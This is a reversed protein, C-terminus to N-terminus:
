SCIRLAPAAARAMSTCAAASAQRTGADLDGDLLAHETM